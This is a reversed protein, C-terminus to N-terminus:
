EEIPRCGSLCPDIVYGDPIKGKHMEYSYRHARVFRANVHLGGYDGAGRPRAGTWRWCEGDSHKDVNRWFRVEIPTHQNGGRTSCGCDTVRSNRLCYSRSVRIAGCDCVCEWHVDRAAGTPPVRRTVVLLGFRQGTLDRAPKSM